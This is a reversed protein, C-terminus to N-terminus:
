ASETSKEGRRADLTPPGQGNKMCIFKWQSLDQGCVRNGLWAGPGERGLQLYLVSQCDGSQRVEELRVASSTDRIEGCESRQDKFAPLEM